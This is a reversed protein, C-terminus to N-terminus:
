RAEQGERAEDGEGPDAFHLLYTVDDLVEYIPPDGNIPNSPVAPLVGPVLDDLRDPLADDRLRYGRIALEIALLRRRAAVRDLATRISDQAPRALARLQSRVGPILARSFRINRPMSAESWGAELALVEEIPPSSRDLELLDRAAERCQAEDLQELGLRLGELGVGEEIAVGTLAHLLLGNRTAKRAFRIADISRRSADGARGEALAVRADALMLRGLTRLPGLDEMSAQLDAQTYTLPVGSPLDLAHDALDLAERNDAVWVRLPDIDADLINGGDPGLGEIMRSARVLADHGNPSPIPPPRFAPPGPRSRSLILIAVLGVVSLAALAWRIRRRPRTSATPNSM